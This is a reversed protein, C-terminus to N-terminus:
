YNRIEFMSCFGTCYTGKRVIKRVESCNHQTVNSTQIIDPLDEEGMGLLEDAVCIFLIKYIVSYKKCIIVNCSTEKCLHQVLICEYLFFFAKHEVHFNYYSTIRNFKM